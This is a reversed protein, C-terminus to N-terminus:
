YRALESELSWLYSQLFYAQPTHPYKEVIMKGIQVAAEGSNRIKSNYRHEYTSLFPDGKKKAIGADYADLEKQFDAFLMDVQKETMVEQNQALEGAAVRAEQMVAQVEPDQEIKGNRAITPLRMWHYYQIYPTSGKRAREATLMFFWKYAMPHTEETGTPIFFDFEAPPRPPDLFTVVELWDLSRNLVDAPAGSHKADFAFILLPCEPTLLIRARYTELFNSDKDGIAAVVAVGEPYEKYFDNNKDYGEEEFGYAAAAGQWILGRFGPRAAPMLSTMRAGGSFGTAFKAGPLVRVRKMVDDHAAIFNNLSNLSGNKSDVLGVVVWGDEMYRRKLKGPGAGGGPSAIFIVPYFLEPNENYGEPLYLKYRMGKVYGEGSADKSTVKESFLIMDPMPKVVDCTIEQGSRFSEWGGEPAPVPPPITNAAIAQAVQAQQQIQRQAQVLAKAKTILPENLEGTMAAMTQFHDFRKNIWAVRVGVLARAMEPMTSALSLKQFVTFQDLSFNEKIRGGGAVTRMVTVQDPPNLAILMGERLGDSGQYQINQRRFAELGAMVYVNLQSADKLADRIREMEQRGEPLWSPDSLAETVYGEGGIFDGELVFGSIRLLTEAKGEPAGSLEQTWGLAMVSWVWLAFWTYKM